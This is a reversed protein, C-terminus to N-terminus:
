FQFYLFPSYAQAAVHCLAAVFVLGAALALVRRPRELLQQSNPACFVLALGLVLLAAVPLSLDLDASAPVPTAGVLARLHATAGQLETSRFFVWGVLVIAFTPLAGLPGPLRQWFARKGLVRELALWSGHWAGWLVFNWSAGHWLGGLLMTLELNLYTRGAGGRNGGLPVYLYDRLWTSLTIHWRRWFETISKAKYPSDFNVPFEFGFMRGLGIAMDSYGSFDFYIQLAYAVVGLWAAGAGIAAGGQSADFARDALPAFQDALLAKKALGLQFLLVGHAFRELTHSRGRLQDAVDAYRVIPGAVLQPFLTVFSAFDVFDRQARLERRYVDITYSMSQFTYFSIGVPLVVEPWWTERLGLAALLANLNDIGFNAYKFYGLLALNSVISTWLWGRRRAPDTSSELRLGVAYDIGCTVFMLAAFDVRWWAYFLTSAALLLWTRARGTLAYYAGLVLPLFAFLFIYASFVV